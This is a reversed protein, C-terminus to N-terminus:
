GCPTAVATANKRRAPKWGVQRSRATSGSSSAARARRAAARSTAIETGICVASTSPRRTAACTRRAFGAVCTQTNPIYAVSFRASSAPSASLTSPGSQSACSTSSASASAAPCSTAAWGRGGPRRASSTGSRLASGGSAFYARSAIAPSSRTAPWTSAVRPHL